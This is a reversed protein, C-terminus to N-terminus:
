TVPAPPRPLVSTGRTRYLDQADLATGMRYADIIGLISRRLESEEAGHEAGTKPADNERM